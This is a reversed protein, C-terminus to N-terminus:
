AAFEAVPSGHLTRTAARAACWQAEEAPAADCIHRALAPALFIDQMGLGALVFARSRKLPGVLPAGDLPVLTSFRTQAARRPTCGAPLSAAIRAEALGDDDAAVIELAGDRRQAITVRHDLHALVDSALPAVPETLFAAMPLTSAIGELEAADLHAALAEDDALVVRDFAIEGWQGTGNRRVTLGGTDEIRGVGLGDLWDPAAAAFPAHHFRICDRAMLSLGADPLREIVRGFGTAIHRFHHLATVAAPGQASFVANTRSTAGPAIRSFLRVTEGALDGALRISEPRTLPALSLPVARALRHASFPRAFLVVARSHDAAILGALLLALPSSGVVAINEPQGAMPESLEPEEPM